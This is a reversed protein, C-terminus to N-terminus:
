RKKRHGFIMGMPLAPDGNKLREQRRFTQFGNAGLFSEIEDARVNPHYELVVMNVRDLEGRIEKLISYESGECDLKLLEVKDVRNLYTSLRRIEVLTNAGQFGRGRDYLSANSKFLSHAGEDHPMWLFAQGDEEGLAVSVAAIRDIRNAEIHCNLREFNWPSPEFALVEVETSRSAVFCSFLGVNAGVDVILGESPPAFGEPFYEQAEFIQQFLYDGVLMDDIWLRLEDYVPTKVTRPQFEPQNM